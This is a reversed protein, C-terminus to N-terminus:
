RGGVSRWTMPLWGGDSKTGTRRVAVCWVGNEEFLFSPDERNWSDYTRTTQVCRGGWCNNKVGVVFVFVFFFSRHLRRFSFRGRRCACSSRCTVPVKAKEEIYTGVNTSRGASASRGAGAPRGTSAPSTSGRKLTKMPRKRIKNKDNCVFSLFFYRRRPPSPPTNASRPDSRWDGPYLSLGWRRWCRFWSWGRRFCLLGALPLIAWPFLVPHSWQKFRTFRLFSSEQMM